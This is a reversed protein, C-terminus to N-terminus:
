YGEIEYEAALIKLTATQSSPRSFTLYITSTEGPKIEHPLSPEAGTVTLASANEPTLSIDNSTLIFSVEGYNLISIEIRITQGDESTTTELLSIEAQVQSADPTNFTKITEDALEGKIVFGKAAEQQVFITIGSTSQDMLISHDPMDAQPASLKFTVTNCNEWTISASEDAQLSNQFALNNETPSLAFVYNTETNDVWYAKDPTNSPIKLTGDKKTEISKIQYTSEGIKLVSQDCPPKEGFGLFQCSTVLIAFLMFVICLRVIKISM